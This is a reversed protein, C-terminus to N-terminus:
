RVMVGIERLQSSSRASSNLALRAKEVRKGSVGAVDRVALATAFAAQAKGTESQRSPRRRRQANRRRENNGARQVFVAEGVGRITEAAAICPL